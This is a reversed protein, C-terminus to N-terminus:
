RYVMSNLIDELSTTPTWDFLQLLLSNDSIYWKHDGRREVTSTSYNFKLDFSNRLIKVAELVSVSNLRGGGMNSVIPYQNSSLVKSSDTIKCVLKGIDSAHLNDRVQYGDYGIIEYHDGAIATKVLYSLFGHLKAGRHRSGTLCGGRLIVTKIGFYRSYEQVYLDASAKSCGFLSHLSNDISMSTDIGDYFPHDTALEFRDDKQKLELFNPTDGYVKNTSLFIFVGDFDNKRLIELLNVTATLNINLDVLPDNAAWDHSPQAACHVVVDLRDRSLVDRVASRMAESDRIDVNFFSTIGSDSNLKNIESQELPIVDSFLISRVDNDIGYVSFKAAALAEAVYSGVLGLNGTVIASGM